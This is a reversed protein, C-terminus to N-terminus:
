NSRKRIQQKKSERNTQTKTIINENNTKKNLNPKTLKVIGKGEKNTCLKKYREDNTSEQVKLQSLLFSVFSLHLM